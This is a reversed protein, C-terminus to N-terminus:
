LLKDFFASIEFEVLLESINFEMTKSVRDVDRAAERALLALIVLVVNRLLLGKALFCM